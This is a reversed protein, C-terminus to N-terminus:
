NIQKAKNSCDWLGIYRWWINRCWENFGISSWGNWWIWIGSCWSEWVSGSWSWNWVSGSWCWNWISSWNWIGCCWGSVWWVWCIRSWNGRGKGVVRPLCRQHHHNHHVVADFRDGSAFVFMMEGNFMEFENTKVSNKSRVDSGNRVIRLILFWVNMYTVFFFFCKGSFLLFSDLVFVFM